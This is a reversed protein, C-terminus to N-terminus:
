CLFYDRKQSYLWDFSDFSEFATKTTTTRKEDVVCCSFSVFRLRPLLGASKCINLNYIEFLNNKELLKDINDYCSHSM